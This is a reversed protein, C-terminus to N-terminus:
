KMLVRPSISLFSSRTGSRSRSLNSANRFPKFSAWALSASGANVTSDEKLLSQSEGSSPAAQDWKYRAVKYNEIEREGIEATRHAGTELQLWM